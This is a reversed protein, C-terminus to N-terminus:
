SPLPSPAAGYTRAISDSLPLEINILLRSDPLFLSVKCPQLHLNVEPLPSTISRALAPLCRTRSRKLFFVPHPNRINASPASCGQGVSYIVKGTAAKSLPERGSRISQHNRIICILYNYTLYTHIHAYNGPAPWSWCLLGREMGGEMM